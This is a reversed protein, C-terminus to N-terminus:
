TELPAPSLRSPPPATVPPPPSRRPCTELAEDETQQGAALPSQCRTPMQDETTHLKPPTTSTVSSDQMVTSGRSAPPSVVASPESTMQCAAAGAVAPSEHPPCSKSPSSMPVVHARTLSAGPSQGRQGKEESDSDSGKPQQETDGDAEQPTPPPDSPPLAPLSVERRAKKEAQDNDAVHPRKVAAPSPSPSEADTWSLRRKQFDFSFFTQVDNRSDCSRSRLYVDTHGPTSVKVPIHSQDRHKHPPTSHPLSATPPATSAAPNSSATIQPFWMKLM